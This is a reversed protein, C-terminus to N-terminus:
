GAKLRTASTEPLTSADTPVRLMGVVLCTVPGTNEVHAGEIVLALNGDANGAKVTLGAQQCYSVASALIEIAEQPTIPLTKRKAHKTTSM